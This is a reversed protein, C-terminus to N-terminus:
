LNIPEVLVDSPLKDKWREITERAEAETKFRTAFKAFLHRIPFPGDEFMMFHFYQGEFPDSKPSRLVFNKM